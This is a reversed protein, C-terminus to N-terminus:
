LRSRQSTGSHSANGVQVAGGETAIMGQLACAMAAGVSANNIVLAINSALSAGKTLQRIRDLLFPTIDSGKIGQAGAEELAQNTASEVVAGAAVHRAPIPVALLMGNSLHLRRLARFVAAAEQPTDVRSPAKCGSHPTFFAPFEDAGLAAVCVGLSKVGACVVAVPTRGLESLDASIDM